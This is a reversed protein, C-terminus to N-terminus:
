RNATQATGPAGLRSSGVRSHTWGVQLAPRTMLLHAVRGNFFASCSPTWCARTSGTSSGASSASIVMGAQPSNPGRGAKHLEKGISRWFVRRCRCRHQAGEVWWRSSQDHCELELNDDARGTGPADAGTDCAPELSLDAVMATELRSEDVDRVVVKRDEVLRLVRSQLLVLVFVGLAPRLSYFLGVSVREDRRFVIIAGRRSQQVREIVQHGLPAVLRGAHHTIAADRAPEPTRLVEFLRQRRELHYRRWFADANRVNRAM